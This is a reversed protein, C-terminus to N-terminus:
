YTFTINRIVDRALALRKHAKIKRLKAQEEAQAAEISELMAERLEDTAKIIDKNELTSM